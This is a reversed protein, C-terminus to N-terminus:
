YIPCQWDLTLSKSDCQPFDIRFLLMVEKFIKHPYHAYPFWISTYIDSHFSCVCTLVCCTGFINWSLIVESIWIRWMYVSEKGLVSRDITIYNWSFIWFWYYTFENTNEHCSILRLFKNNYISSCHNLHSRFVTRASCRPETRLVWKVKAGM